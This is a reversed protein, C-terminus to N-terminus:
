RTEQLQREGIIRWGDDTLQWRLEQWVDGYREAGKISIVYQKRFRMTATKGDRDLTIEPAGARVDILSAREFMRAMDKQVTERSVNRSRYYFLLKPSYFSIEKDIDRANNAQIWEDLSRRLSAFTESLGESSRASGNDGTASAEASLGNETTRAPNQAAINAINKDFYYTISRYTVEDPLPVEKGAKSVVTSATMKTWNGVADFEYKYTEKGLVSNNVDRVTMGALNGKDDYDYEQRGNYSNGLVLYNASEIRNGKQDYTALEMLQRPGEVLQGSQNLLKATETRTQHVSGVLGDQDKDSILLAISSPRSGSRSARGSWLYALAFGFALSVIILIFLKLAYSKGLM